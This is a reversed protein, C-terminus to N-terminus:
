ITLINVTEQCLRCYNKKPRKHFKSWTTRREKQHAWELSKEQDEDDSVEVIIDQDFSERDVRNKIEEPVQSSIDHFNEICKDFRSWYDVGPYFGKFSPNGKKM